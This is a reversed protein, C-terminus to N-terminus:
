VKTVLDWDTGRGELVIMAHLDRYIKVDKPLNQQFLEQLNGYSFDNTLNLKKALRRTYEDIVFVLKKGAYLLIDDATEPGIGPLELLEKRCTATPKKFFNELGGQKILFDCLGFLRKAKQKYFGTPKILNELGELNSKGLRYIKEVGSYDAKKLNDFAMEVNRWNVRQTLIAGLIIREKEKLTKKDKCWEQWFDRPEGYKKLLGQYLKFIRKNKNEKTM